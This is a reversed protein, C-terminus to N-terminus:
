QKIFKVTIGRMNLFYVGHTLPKINIKSGDGTKGQMEIEGTMNFIVYDVIEQAALKLYLEDTAPNPYVVISSNKDSLDFIGVLLATFDQYAINNTINTCTISQPTFDYGSMNPTIIITSGEKVAVSYEGQANSMVAPTGAINMNVGEFPKEDLTVKGSVNYKPVAANQNEYAGMDVIGNHIRPKGDLDFEIEEVAENNGADVCPSNALLKFNNADPNVFMPGGAMNDEALNINGEGEFGGQVASYTATGEM